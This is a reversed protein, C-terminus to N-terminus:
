GAAVARLLEALEQSAGPTFHCHAGRTLRAIEAFVRRGTDDLVHHHHTAELLDLDIEDGIMWAQRQEVTVLLQVHIKAEHEQEL